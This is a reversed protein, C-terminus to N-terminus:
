GPRWGASWRCGRRVEKSDPYRRPPAATVLTVVAQITFMTGVTLVAYLCLAWRGRCRYGELLSTGTSAAYRPGFSFAPYKVINAVIVLGILAFGYEAGARTSQM